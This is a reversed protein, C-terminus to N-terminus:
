KRETFAAQHPAASSCSSAAEGRVFVLSYSGGSKMWKKGTKPVCKLRGGPAHDAHAYDCLEDAPLRFLAAHIQFEVDNFVFSGCACGNDEGVNKLIM